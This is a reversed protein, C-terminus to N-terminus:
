EAQFREQPFYYYLFMPFANLIAVSNHPIIYKMMQADFILEQRIDEKSEPWSLTDKTLMNAKYVNQRILHKWNTEDKLYAYGKYACFNKAEKKFKEGVSDERSVIYSYYQNDPLSKTYGISEIM